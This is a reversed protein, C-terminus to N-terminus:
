CLNGHLDVGTLLSGADYSRFGLTLGSTVESVSFGAGYCLGSTERKVLRPDFEQQVASLLFEVSNLCLRSLHQQRVQARAILMFFVIYKLLSGSTLCVIIVTCNPCM